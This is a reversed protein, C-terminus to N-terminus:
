VKPLVFGKGEELLLDEDLRKYNHLEDEKFWIKIEKEAEEVNGSAHILNKISRNRLNAFEYSDTSFDGRISGVESASPETSGCIKRSIQVANPGYLVFAIVPSSKLFSRLQNVIVMGYENLDWKFEIGESEFKNKAKEAIPLAMSDPYHEALMGDTARVMKMGIIKLGSKEFRSIIEGSLSRLIGDPKVLILTREPERM